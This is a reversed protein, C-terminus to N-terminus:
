NFLRDLWFAVKKHLCSIRESIHFELALHGGRLVGEKRETFYGVIATKLHGVKFIM